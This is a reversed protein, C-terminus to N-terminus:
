FYFYFLVQPASAQLALVSSFTFVAPPLHSPLALPGPLANPLFSWPRM